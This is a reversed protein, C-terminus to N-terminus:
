NFEGYLALLCVLEAQKEKLITAEKEKEALLGELEKVRETLHTIHEVAKQAADAKEQSAFSNLWHTLNILNTKIEETM